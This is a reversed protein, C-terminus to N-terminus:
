TLQHQILQLTILTFNRSAGATEGASFTRRALSQAPESKVIEYREQTNKKCEEPAPIASSTYPSNDSLDFTRCEFHRCSRHNEDGRNDKISRLVSFRLISYKKSERRNEGWRIKLCIKPFFVPHFYVRLTTRSTSPAASSIMHNTRFLSYKHMSAYRLPQLSSCEFHLQGCPCTPEFGM